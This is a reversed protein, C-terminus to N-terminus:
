RILGNSNLEVTDRGAPFSSSHSHLVTVSRAYSSPWFTGKGAKTAGFKPALSPSAGM